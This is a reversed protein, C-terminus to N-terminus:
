YNIYKNISSIAIRLYRDGISKKNQRYNAAAINYYQIAQALPANATIRFPRDSVQNWSATKLANIQDLITVVTFTIMETAVASNDTVSFLM